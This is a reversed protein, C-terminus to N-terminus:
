RKGAVKKVPEPEDPGGPLSTAIKANSTQLGKLAWSQTEALGLSSMALFFIDKLNLGPALQFVAVGMAFFTPVSSIVFFRWDFPRGSEIWSLLGRGMVALAVVGLYILQEYLQEM